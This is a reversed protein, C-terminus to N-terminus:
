SEVKSNEIPKEVKKKSVIQIKYEVLIEAVEQDQKNKLVVWHTDIKSVDDAWNIKM